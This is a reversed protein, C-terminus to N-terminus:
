GGETGMTPNTMTTDLFFVAGDVAMSQDSRVNVIGRKGALM